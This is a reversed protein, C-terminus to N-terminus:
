GWCTDNTTVAEGSDCLKRLLGAFKLETPNHIVMSSADIMRAFDFFAINNQVDDSILLGRPRLHHWILSYAWLRGNYGRIPTTTSWILHASNKLFARCPAGTRAEPLIWGKRLEDPVAIGVHANGNRGLYLLDISHLIANPRNRLSLLLALSSWGYAVDTELVTTAEIGEAVQYLPEVNAAGGLTAACERIRQKAAEVNVPFTTRFQFEPQHVICLAELAENVFISDTVCKQFAKAPEEAQRTDLRHM